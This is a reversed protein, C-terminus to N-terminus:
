WDTGDSKHFCITNSCEKRCNNSARYACTQNSFTRLSVFGLSALGKARAGGRVGKGKPEQDVAWCRCARTWAM